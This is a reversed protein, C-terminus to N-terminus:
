GTGVPVGSSVAWLSGLVALAVVVAPGVWSVGGNARRLARRGPEDPAATRAAGIVKGVHRYYLWNATSPMGLLVAASLLASLGPSAAAAPAMLLEVLIVAAAWAYMKRYLLWLIPVLAGPWCWTFTWAGGRADFRRFRALYRDTNKPGIVDAYEAERGGDGFDHTRGAAEAGLRAATEIGDPPAGADPPPREETGESM